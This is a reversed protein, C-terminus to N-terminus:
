PAGGSWFQELAVPPVAFIEVRVAAFWSPVKKVPHVAGHFPAPIQLTFEKIKRTLLRWGNPIGGMRDFFDAFDAFTPCGTRWLENRAVSSPRMDPMAGLSSPDGALRPNGMPERGLEANQMRCEANQM